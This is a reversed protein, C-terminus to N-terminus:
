PINLFGLSQYFDTGALTMEKVKEAFRSTCKEQELTERTTNWHFVYKLIADCKMDYVISFMDQFAVINSDKPLIEKLTRDLLWSNCTFGKYDYEPYFENFFEKARGIADLCLEKTMAGGSPIHIEIVNDGKSIGAVLIDQAAKEMCFQLRGLRFIKMTMHFKLWKIEGLYLEGKLDSWINTWTVIDSLTDYLIDLSIGKKEYREKLSECFYLFYLLNKKGDTEEFNYTEISTSEDISIKDLISEFEANYKQPFNLKKYWFDIVAKTNM